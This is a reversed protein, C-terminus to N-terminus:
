GLAGKINNVIDNYKDSIVLFVVNGAQQPSCAEIVAVQDPHYSKADSLQKQLREDLKAKINAAAAADKADVIVVETYNSSDTSYEAAFSKVDAPDIQYYRNLDDVTKMGSIGFATNVGTMVTNLDVSSASGSNDASEGCAALVGMLMLAALIIAAFRKM